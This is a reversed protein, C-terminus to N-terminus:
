RLPGAAEDAGEPALWPLTLAVRTGSRDARDGVEVSGGLAAARDAMGRLGAGKGAVAGGVGDDEVTLELRAGDSVIAVTAEGAQAHKVVNALAEAAVFYAAQEVHDDARAGDTEDVVSVAVPLRDAVERVAAALGHRALTPPLIGHVLARLEGAAGDLADGLSELRERAPAELADDGALMRTQMALSLLRQQAGDHLDRAIRRRESDGARAIRERSERVAELAAAREDALRANEIALALPRELGGIAAAADGLWDDHVIAAVRRGNHQLEAVARGAAPPTVAEYSIEATPDGLARRVLQTLEESGVDESGLRRLVPELATPRFGGTAVIVGMVLPLVELLSLAFDGVVQDARSPGGETVTLVSAVFLLLLGPVAILTVPLVARRRRPPGSLSRRVLVAAVAALAVAFTVYRLVNGTSSFTPSHVAHFPIPPCPDCSLLLDSIFSRARIVDALMAVVSSAIASAYAAAVLARELRGGVRGTPFALLTHALLALTPYVAAVGLAFPLPADSRALGVVLWGLGTATMLLGVRNAPRRAWAVIGGAVFCAGVLPALVGAGAPIARNSDAALALDVGFLVTAVVALLALAPKLGAM